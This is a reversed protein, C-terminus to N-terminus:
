ATNGSKEQRLRRLFAPTNLGRELLYTLYYQMLGEIERNVLAGPQAAAAEPYSSRQYHRLYKLAALSIQRAGSIEPGCNPCLVGGTEASFYQDEAIIQKGCKTCNFLQPRFGLFDLLRIEYYHIVLEPPPSDQAKNCQDLRALTDVLLRYIARNEGEEYTFRDLLEIVYAAYTTLILDDRLAPYAEVTEAQTVILIDRGRALLLAARTFPELHGAKRSRPKRAGKAVARVKGLELCFLTLLRDAEGWDSHRLVVAEVRFSRARHSAPQDM